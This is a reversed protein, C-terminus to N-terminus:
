EEAFFALVFTSDDWATMDPHLVLRRTEVITPTMTERDVTVRQIRYSPAGVTLPTGPDSAESYYEWNYNPDPVPAETTVTGFPHIWWSGDETASVAFQPYATFVHNSGDYQMLRWGVLANDSIRRVTLRSSGSNNVGDWNQTELTLMLDTNPEGFCTAAPNTGVAIGSYHTSGPRNWRGGTLVNFVVSTVNPGDLYGTGGGEGGHWDWSPSAPFEAPDNGTSLWDGNGNWLNGKSDLFRLRAEWAATELQCATPLVTTSVVAPSGGAGSLPRPVRAEFLWGDHALVMQGGIPACGTGNLPNISPLGDCGTKQVATRIETARALRQEILAEISSVVRRAGTDPPPPPIYRSGTPGSSLPM